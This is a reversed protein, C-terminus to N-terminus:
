LTQVGDSLSCEGKVDAVARLAGILAPTIRFVGTDIANYVTLDKGIGRIFSGEAQVKTADDIDFCRDVDYDVALGCADEPLEAAMLRRPLEPSYLHDSM